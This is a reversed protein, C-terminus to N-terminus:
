RLTPMFKVTAMSGPHLHFLKVQSLVTMGMPSSLMQDIYGADLHMARQVSLILDPWTQPPSPVTLLHDRIRDLLEPREIPEDAPQDLGIPMEIPDQLLGTSEERAAEDLDRANRPNDVYIEDNSREDTSARERVAPKVVLDAGYQEIAENLTLPGFKLPTDNLWPHNPDFTPDVDARRAAVMLEVRRLPTAHGGGYLMAHLGLAPMDDSGEEAGSILAAVAMGQRVGEFLMMDELKGFNRMIEHVTQPPVGSQVLQIFFESRLAFYRREDEELRFPKTM